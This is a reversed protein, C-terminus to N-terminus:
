IGFDARLFPALIPSINSFSWVRFGLFRRIEAVLCFCFLKVNFSQHGLSAALELYRLLYTQDSLPETHWGPKLHEISAFWYRCYWFSIWSFKNPVDATFSQIKKQNKPAHQAGDGFLPLFAEHINVKYKKRNKAAHQAGSGFMSFHKLVFQRFM